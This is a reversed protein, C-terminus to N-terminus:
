ATALVFSSNRSSPTTAPLQVSVAEQFARALAAALAPFGLRHAMGVSLYLSCRIYDRRQEANACYLIGLDLHDELENALRIVLVDRGQVDLENISNRIAPITNKNWKLTTYGAILEETEAGIASRVKERKAETMGRPEGTGYEGYIYAAHLLGAAVSQIPAQLTALISATGILHSLFPKGSGRFRGAFIQLAFDYVQSLYNLDAESYHALRLQNFLQINTQAYTNVSNSGFWCRQIIPDCTTANM